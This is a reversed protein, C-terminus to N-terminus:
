SERTTGSFHILWGAAVAVIGAGEATNLVSYIWWPENVNLNYYQAFELTGLYAVAGAIVVAGLLVIAEGIASRSRRRDSDSGVRPRYSQRTRLVWGTAALLCGIATLLEGVGFALDIWQFSNISTSHYVAYYVWASLFFDISLLGLGTVFLIPGLYSPRPSPQASGIPSHDPGMENSSARRSPITHPEALTPREGRSM